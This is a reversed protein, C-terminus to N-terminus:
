RSFPLQWFPHHQRKIQHTLLQYWGSQTVPPQRLQPSRLAPRGEAVSTSHAGLSNRKTM